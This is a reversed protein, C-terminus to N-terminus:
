EHSAPRREKVLKTLKLAPTFQISICPPVLMRNGSEPDIVVHEDTKIAAFTGFSPIAVQDGATLAEAVIDGFAHLINDPIQNM